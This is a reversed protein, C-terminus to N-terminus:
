GEEDVAKFVATIVDASAWDKPVWHGRQKLGECIEQTIALRRADQNEKLQKIEAKAEDRQTVIRSVVRGYRDPEHPIRQDGADAIAAVVGTIDLKLQEIEDLIIFSDSMNLGRCGSARERFEKIQELTIM